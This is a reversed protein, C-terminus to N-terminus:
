DSNENEEVGNTRIMWRLNKYWKTLNSSLTISMLSVPTPMKYDVQNLSRFIFNNDDEMVNYLSIYNIIRVVGEIEKYM